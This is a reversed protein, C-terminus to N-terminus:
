QSNIIFTTIGLNYIYIQFLLSSKNISILTFICIFPIHTIFCNYNNM